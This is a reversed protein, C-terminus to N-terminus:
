DVKPERMKVHTEQNWTQTNEVCVMFTTRLSQRTSNYRSAACPAMRCVEGLRTRRSCIISRGLDFRDFNYTSRWVTMLRLIRGGRDCRAVVPHGRDCRRLPHKVDLKLLRNSSSSTNSRITAPSQVSQWMLKAAAVMRGCMALRADNRSGASDVEAVAQRM